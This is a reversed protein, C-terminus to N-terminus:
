MSPLSPGSRERGRDLAFDDGVMRGGIARDRHRELEPRWPVLTFERQGAIVAFRGSVLDVRRRYSGEIRRGAGAEAFDLGLESSLAAASRSLERRRLVALLNRRYVVGDERREALGQEVLWQQRQALATRVERGLGAERVASPESSVLERDLWTAADARALEALPQAALTTVEVPNARSRGQALAVVSGQRVPDALDATGIEAYHVRGDIGDVVLYHREHLEDSLGREIVRGVLPRGADHIAYDAHGRELGQETIARQLTRIIDGREGMRRLTDELNASLRFVGPTEERALGLRKLKRLRGVKLTHRLNDSGPGAATDVVQGIGAERVLGRDLSTLREQDVERRLRDEIERDTRPGLELSVIAQARLRMGQAIYDRAIVLDKGREDKGRIVVHTHPHGTNHHDVAVWDLRTGLDKEVQAMLRRTFGPLDEYEAADEPSVILRFQHRDDQGREAFTKGDADGAADYLRGAVGERSVGDRQLYRLHGAIGARGTAALKVIRTKIAVRRQRLGAYRDRMMRAASGGRGIRSGRFGRRAGAIGGARALERLVQNRFASRLGKDRPKGLRPTFEDDRM